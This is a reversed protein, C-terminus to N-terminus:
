EFDEVDPGGHRPSRVVPKHRIRAQREVFAAKRCDTSCYRQDKRKKRYQRKCFLCAPLTPTASTAGPLEDGDDEVLRQFGTKRQRAKEFAALAQKLSHRTTHKLGSHPSFTIKRVLEALAIAAQESTM